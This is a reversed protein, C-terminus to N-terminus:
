KENRSSSKRIVLDPKIIRQVPQPIGQKGSEIIHHLEEIAAQGSQNLYQHVSTLPPWYYAAEPADDYGVVLLDRPISIGLECATNLAGLAMSDNCVFVADLNPHRGLLTKMGTQGSEALWDGEVILSPDSSLGAKELVSSWATLRAQSEWWDLPGTIIGIKRCGQDALHSVALQAGLFNDISIVNLEPDPHMHLFLIPPYNETRINKVWDRNGDIEHIAWIIGDVRRARIQNLSAIIDKETKENVFNLMITYGLETAKRQIGTLASSYGYFGLERLDTIVISIIRSYRNVLGQAMLDPEYGSKEIADLIRQRTAEAVPRKGTLANSVTGPSVQAIKAVDEITIKM